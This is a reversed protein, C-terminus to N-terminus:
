ITQALALIIGCGLIALAAIILVVYGVIDSM